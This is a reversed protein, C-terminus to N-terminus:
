IKFVPIDVNLNKHDFNEIINEKILDSLIKIDIVFGTEANVEGSVKVVVEYNHGHYNANNCKGYVKQNTKDGYLIIYGILLM